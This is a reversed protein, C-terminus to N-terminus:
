RVPLVTSWWAFGVIVFGLLTLKILRGDILSEVDKRHQSFQVELEKRYQSFEKSQAERHVLLLHEFETRQRLLLNETSLRDVEHKLNSLDSPPVGNEPENAM